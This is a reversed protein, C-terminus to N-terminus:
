GCRCGKNHGPGRNVSLSRTENKTRLEEISKFLETNSLTDCLQILSHMVTHWRGQCKASAIRRYVCTDFSAVEKGDVGICPRTVDFMNYKILHTLM